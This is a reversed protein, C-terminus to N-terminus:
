NVDTDERLIRWYQACLKVERNTLDTQDPLVVQSISLPFSTMHLSESCQACASLM